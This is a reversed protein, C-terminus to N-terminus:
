PDLDVHTNLRYNDEFIRFNEGDYQDLDYMFLADVDLNVYYNTAVKVDNWIDSWQAQNSPGVTFDPPASLSVDVGNAIIKTTLEITECNGSGYWFGYTHGDMVGEGGEFVSHSYTQGYLYSSALPYLYVDYGEDEDGDRTGKDSEKKPTDFVYDIEKLDVDPDSIILNNPGVRHIVDKLEEPIEPPKEAAVSEVSILLMSMIIGIMIVKKVKM